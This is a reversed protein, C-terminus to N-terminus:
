TLAGLENHEKCDAATSVLHWLKDRPDFMYTCRCRSTFYELDTMTEPADAM